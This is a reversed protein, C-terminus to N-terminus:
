TNEVLQQPLKAIKLPDTLMIDQPFDYRVIFRKESRDDISDVMGLWYIVMGTGFRNWYSSYQDKTYNQHEEPDGFLAKSEIWNVVFGDVAFPVDLKIDPTKDYGYIRLDNESQFTLNKERVIKQLYHEYEQGFSQRIVDNISGYQYDYLQCMFVDYALDQEEILTTDKLYQKINAVKSSSSDTSDVSEYYKELILKAVLAYPLDFEDALKLMVGSADTSDKMSLYREYLKSTFNSTKHQSKKMKRKNENLIISLITDKPLGFEDSLMNELERCHGKYNQIKTIIQNYTNTSVIM